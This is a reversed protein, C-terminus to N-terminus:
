SNRSLEVEAFGVAPVKISRQLATGSVINQGGITHRDDREEDLWLQVTPRDPTGLVAAHHARVGSWHAANRELYM